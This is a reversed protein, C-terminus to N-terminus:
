QSLQLAARGLRTLLAHGFIREACGLEELRAIQADSLWEGMALRSLSAREASSLHSAHERGSPTDDEALPCWFEVDPSEHSFM